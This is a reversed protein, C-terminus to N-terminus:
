PPDGALGVGLSLALWSGNITYEPSGEVDGITELTILGAEGSLSAVIGRTLNTLVRATAIPGGWPTRLITPILPPRLTKDPVPAFRMVGIRMGGGLEFTVPGLRQRLRASLSSSGSLVDVSGVPLRSRGTEFLLDGGITLWDRYALWAGAAGGGVTLLDSDRFNRGVGLIEIDWRLPQHRAAASRAADAAQSRLQPAATAEVIPVSVAPPVTLEMWSAAVLEAASLSLVRPRAAAAESRLDVHRQLMKGSIPDHVTILTTGESCTVSVVTADQKPGEAADSAAVSVGLEVTLVHGVVDPSVGTCPDVDLQVPLRRSSDAVAAGAWALCLCGIAVALRARPQIRHAGVFVSM